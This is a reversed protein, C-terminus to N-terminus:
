HSQLILWAKNFCGQRADEARIWFYLSGGDGWMVGLDEDSDMQLLLQWDKAKRSLEENQPNNDYTSDGCYLGETVMQCQLAMQPTQINDPYGGMLHLPGEGLLSTRWEMLNTEEIDTLKLSSIVEDEYTPPLHAPVFGISKTNMLSGPKINPLSSEQQEEADLRGTAHIVEWGGQDAPDFGWPQEELDYFFLLKGTKPLWDLVAPLQQLDICALFSLPRGKNEPWTFPVGKPPQGGFYSTSSTSTGKILLARKLFPEVLSQVSKPQGNGGTPKPIDSSGRTMRMLAWVLLATILLSFIVITIVVM